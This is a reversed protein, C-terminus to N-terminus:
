TNLAVVDKNYDVPNGAVVVFKPLASEVVNEEEQGM